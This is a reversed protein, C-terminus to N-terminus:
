TTLRGKYEANRYIKSIASQVRGATAKKWRDWGWSEWGGTFVKASVGAEPAKLFLGWPKPDFVVNLSRCEYVVSEQDSVTQAGPRLVVLFEEPTM